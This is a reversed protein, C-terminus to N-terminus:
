LSGCRMELSEGVDDPVDNQPCEVFEEGPSVRWGLMVKLAPIILEDTVEEQRDLVTSRM